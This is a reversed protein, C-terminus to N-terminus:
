IITLIWKGFIEALLFLGFIGLYIFASSFMVMYFRMDEGYYFIEGEIFHPFLKLILKATFFLIYYVIGCLLIMGALGVIVMLVNM